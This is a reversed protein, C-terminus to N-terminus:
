TIREKNHQSEKKHAPIEFAYKREERDVEM